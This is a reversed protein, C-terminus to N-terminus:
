VYIVSAHIKKVIHSVQADRDCGGTLIDCTDVVGCKNVDNVLILRSSMVSVFYRDTSPKTQVNCHLAISLSVRRFRDPDVKVTEIHHFELLLLILGSNGTSQM